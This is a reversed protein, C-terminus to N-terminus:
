HYYGAGRLNPHLLAPAPECPTGRAQRDLGRKLISAVSTYSRAGIELARECAAELRDAGYAKALRSAHRRL